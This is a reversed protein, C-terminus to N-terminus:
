RIWWKYGRNGRGPVFSFDFGAMIGLTCNLARDRNIDYITQGQFTFSKNEVDFLSYDGRHQIVFQVGKTLAFAAGISWAFSIDNVQYLQDADFPFIVPTGDDSVESNLLLGIQPGVELTFMVPGPDSNFHLLLPIKLYTLQRRTAISRGTSDNSTFRQGQSSYIAGTRLGFPPGFNYGLELMGAFGWTIEYDFNTRATDLPQRNFIWTNQPAGMLSVHIGDQARLVAAALMLWCFLYFKKM